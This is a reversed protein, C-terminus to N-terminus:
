FDDEGKVGEKILTSFAQLIIEINKDWVVITSKEYKLRGESLREKEAQFVKEMEYDFQTNMLFAKATNRFIRVRFRNEKVEITIRCMAEMNIRAISPKVSFNFSVETDLTGSIRDEDIKTYKYNTNKILVAKAANFVKVKDNISDLKIVEEYIIESGKFPITSFISDLNQAAEQSLCLVPTLLFLLLLRKM